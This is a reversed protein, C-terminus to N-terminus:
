RLHSSDNVVLWSPQKQWCQMPSGFLPHHTTPIATTTRGMSTSHHLFLDRKIPETQTAGNNSGSMVLPKGSSVLPKGSFVLPNGSGVRPTIQLAEVGGSLPSGSDTLFRIVASSM